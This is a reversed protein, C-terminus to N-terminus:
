YGLKRLSYSSLTGVSAALVIVVLYGLVLLLFIRGKRKASLTGIGKPGRANGTRDEM